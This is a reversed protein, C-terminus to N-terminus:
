YSLTGLVYILPPQFINGKFQNNALDLIQLNPLHNSLISPLSSKQNSPIILTTLLKLSLIREPFSKLGCQSLDLQKISPTNVFLINELLRNSKIRINSLFPANEISIFELKSLSFSEFTNLRKLM